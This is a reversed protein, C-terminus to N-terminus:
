SLFDDEDCTNTLGSFDSAATSRGGLPEGDRLIQVHNLGAAIGKAGATSYAFFSLSVRGYCGSYVQTRDLIPNCNADVIGPPITSNANLFYCNAYLPDDPKELDGDRLVSRLTELPPISNGNGKLKTAGQQYAALIGNKLMEIGTKDKKSFIFKAGYNDNMPNKDFLHPFVIRTNPGTVVKTNLNM